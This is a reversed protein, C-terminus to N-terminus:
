KKYGLILMKNPNQYQWLALYLRAQAPPVSYTLSDEVDICIGVWPAHYVHGPNSSLCRNSERTCHRFGKRAVKWALQSSEFSLKWCSNFTLLWDLQHFM